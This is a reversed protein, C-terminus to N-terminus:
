KRPPLLYIDRSLGDPFEKRQNKTGGLKKVLSRAATNDDNMYTEVKDWGFVSYAHGIAAVSAEQAIGRGRAEPLLWWTLERPWDRGQWFGATGVLRQDAKVEIVWVGFGLLQWSGLDAKLRAWVQDRSIPGGYMKSADADTYFQEYADISEVSPAILRLRQTEITPIM